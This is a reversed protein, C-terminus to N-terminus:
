LDFLDTQNKYEPKHARFLHNTRYAAEMTFDHAIKIQADQIPGTGPFLERKTTEYMWRLRKVEDIFMEDYLLADDEGKFIFM